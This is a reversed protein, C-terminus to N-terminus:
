PDRLGQQIQRLMRKDLLDKERYDTKTMLLGDIDLICVVVGDLDVKIAHSQLSDYSHGNASFLLDVTLEDAIRINDIEGAEPEFWDAELEASSKLFNLARKVREGDDRGVRLLVDVDETARSFGHLRVAQEGILVDDVDEEAFRALLRLLFAPAM